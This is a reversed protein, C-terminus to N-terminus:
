AALTFVEVHLLNVMKILLTVLFHSQVLKRIKEPNLEILFRALFFREQFWVSLAKETLDHFLVPDHVRSLNLNLLSQPKQLDSFVSHLYHINQVTQSTVV